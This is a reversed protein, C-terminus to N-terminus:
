SWPVAGPPHLHATDNLLVIRADSPGVGHEFRLVSLNAQDQSFRRRFEVIRISTAVCVLVRNFTSHAVALVPREEKSLSGHRTDHWAIVDVLFARARAAVQDGSEGGPCATTAPDVEWREREAADTGEIQDYTLGEWRGYDMESLRPDIEVEPKVPLASRVIAATQRARVLPSAVIREFTVGALRQGLAAAQARGADSLGIDIRQGLHQEPESRSTLGHRTLVITLMSGNDM